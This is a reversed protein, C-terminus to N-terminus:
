RLQGLKRATSNLNEMQKELITIGRNLRDLKENLGDFNGIESIVSALQSNLKDLKREHERLFTIIIDISEMYRDNSEPNRAMNNVKRFSLKYM